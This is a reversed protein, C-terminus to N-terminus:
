RTERFNDYFPDSMFNEQPGYAWETFTPYEENQGPLVTGKGPTITTINSGIHGYETFQEYNVNQLKQWLSSM